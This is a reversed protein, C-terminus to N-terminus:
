LDHLLCWCTFIAHVSSQRLESIRDALQSADWSQILFINKNQKKKTKIRIRFRDQTKKEM